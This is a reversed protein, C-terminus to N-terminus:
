PTLVVEYAELTITEGTNALQGTIVVSTAATTDVSAPVVAANLFGDGGWTTSSAAVQSNAVGRNRIHTEGTFSVNAATATANSLFATGGIGSFRGRFTKTNTSGTFSWLTRIRLSGSLGMAGAPVNVTALATENATGTVSNSAAAGRGLTVQHLPVWSTGDSIWLSGGIGVDAVQIILGSAAAAAPKSAWAYQPVGSGFFDTSGDM